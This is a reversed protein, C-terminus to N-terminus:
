IFSATWHVDYHHSTVEDRTWFMSTCSPCYYIQQNNVIAATIYVVEPGIHKRRCRNNITCMAQCGQCVLFGLHLFGCCVCHHCPRQKKALKSHISLFNLQYSLDPDEEGTGSSSAM